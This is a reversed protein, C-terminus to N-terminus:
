EREGREEREGERREGKTKNQPEENLKNKNKKTIKTVSLLVRTGKDFCAIVLM